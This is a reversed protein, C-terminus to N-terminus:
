WDHRSIGFHKDQFVSVIADIRHFCTPDDLTDDELIKIIDLLIRMMEGDVRDIFMDKSMGGIYFLMELGLSRSALWETLENALDRDKGTEMKARWNAVTM